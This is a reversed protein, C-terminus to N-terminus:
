LKISLKLKKKPSYDELLYGKALEIFNKTELVAWEESKGLRQAM